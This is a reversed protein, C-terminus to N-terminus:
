EQYVTLSVQIVGVTREEDDLDNDTPFVISEMAIFTYNALELCGVSNIADSLEQMTDYVLNADKNRYYVELTYSNQREGTINRPESAGGSSVIWWCNSPASLDVGGIFLDTGLVGFGQTQMFQSFDKAINM